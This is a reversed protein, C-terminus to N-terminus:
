IHAGSIVNLSMKVAKRILKKLKGEWIIDWKARLLRDGAGQINMSKSSKKTHKNKKIRTHTNTKNHVDFKPEFDYFM